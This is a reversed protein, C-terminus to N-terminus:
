DFSGKMFQFGVKENELGRQLNHQMDKIRQECEYRCDQLQEQLSLITDERNRILNILEQVKINLQIIENDRNNLNQKLNRTEVNKRELDM